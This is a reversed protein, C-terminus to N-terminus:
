AALKALREALLKGNVSVVNAMLTSGRLALMFAVQPASSLAPEIVDMIALRGITLSDVGM